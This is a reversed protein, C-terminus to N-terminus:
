HGINFVVSFRHLLDSSFQDGPTFAYNIETGGFRLGGGFSAGTSLGAGESEPAFRLGGRLYYQGDFDFEVGSRLSLDGRQPKELDISMLALATPRWSLGLRALTPLPESVGEFDLNSGLNAVVGAVSFDGATIQLGADFATGSASIDDLKQNILKASLGISLFETLQGSLGIAGSIDYASILENTSNGDAGYGPIDGYDLFAVSAGLAFQRGLSVAAAGHEINIDQYWSFHGLAVEGRSDMSGLAAPNWHLAEAGDSISTYAGGMGAARAGFGIRLFDAAARGGDSDAALLSPSCGLLCFILIILVTKNSRVSVDRNGM